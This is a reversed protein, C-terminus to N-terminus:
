TKLKKVERALLEDSSRNVVFFAPKGLIQLMSTHLLDMILGLMFVGVGGFALIVIMLSAWGPVNISIDSFLKLFVIWIGYGFSLLFSAVALFTAIWLVRLNTTVFLRKAHKLLTALRYGSQRKEIHRDDKLEIQVNSIRETFWTLAVDFYTNQACISAAARAIDGRILRFSNFSTVMPNGSLKSAISKAMRSSFDRFLSGHVSKIPLAYVIDAHAVCAQELLLDIHIPHHQLDEDMTVIWDGSSYLIGAVTASHQGYNRSLEVTRLWPHESKQKELVDSSNDLPEDLVFIAESIELISSLNRWREIQVDICSILESLCGDGCYVPIVLSISISTQDHDDTLEM